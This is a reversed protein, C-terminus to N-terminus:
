DGYSRDFRLIYRGDENVDLDPNGFSVSGDTSGPSQPFSSPSLSADFSEDAGFTDKEVLSFKLSEAFRVTLGALDTGSGEGVDLDGQYVIYPEGGDVSIQLELEEQGINLFDGEEIAHLEDFRATRQDTDYRAFLLETDPKCSIQLFLDQDAASVPSTEPELTLCDLGGCLGEPDADLLPQLEGDLVAFHADGASCRASLQLRQKAGSDLAHQHLKFHGVELGSDSVEEGAQLFLPDDFTAGTNRHAVLAYEGTGGSPDDVRVYMPGTSDFLPVSFRGNVASTQSSVAVLPESIRDVAYVTARLPEPVEFTWTGGEVRFWDYSGPAAIEGVASGDIPDAVDPSCRPAELGLDLMLPFHDSLDRLQGDDSEGEFHRPVTAHMPCTLPGDKDVASRFLVYDIRHPSSIPDATNEPGDTTPQPDEPSQRLRTDILGHALIPGSFMKELWEADEDSPGGRINLDGMVLVDAGLDTPDVKEAMFDGLVELQKARFDEDEPESGYHLHTAFLHLTRGTRPNAIRAYAAGLETVLLGSGPDIQLGPYERFEVFCDDDDADDLCKGFPVSGLPQFALEGKTFIALGSGALELLGGEHYRTQNPYLEKLEEKFTKMADPEFVEQLVIIDPSAAILHESILEARRKDGMGYIDYNSGPSGGDFLEMLGPRFQTNYTLVRFSEQAQARPTFALALLHVLSM